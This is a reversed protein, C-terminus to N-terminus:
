CLFMIRMLVVRRVAATTSPTADTMVGRIAKAPVAEAAVGLGFAGSFTAVPTLTACRGPAETKPVVGALVGSVTENMRCSRLMLWSRALTSLPVVFYRVTLWNALVYPWVGAFM